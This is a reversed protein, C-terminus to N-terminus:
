STQIHRLGVPPSSQQGSNQRKLIANVHWLPDELVVVPGSCVARANQSGRPTTPLIKKGLHRAKEVSQPANRGHCDNRIFVRMMAAPGFLRCAFRPLHSLLLLCRYAVEYAVM